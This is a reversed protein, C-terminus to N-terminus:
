QPAWSVPPSLSSSLPPQLLRPSAPFPPSFPLLRHSPSFPLLRSLLALTFSPNIKPVITALNDERQGLDTFWLTQFRNLPACFDGCFLGRERVCPCMGLGACELPLISGFRFLLSMLCCCHAKYFIEETGTQQTNTHLSVQHLNHDMM